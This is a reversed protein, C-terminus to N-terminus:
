KGQDIMGGYVNVKVGNLGLKGSTDLMLGKLQDLPFLEGELPSSHCGQPYITYIKGQPAFHGYWKIAGWENALPDSANQTFGTKRILAPLALWVYMRLVSAFVLCVFCYLSYVFSLYLYVLILCAFSFVLIFHNHLKIRLLQRPHNWLKWFYNPLCFSVFKNVGKYDQIM